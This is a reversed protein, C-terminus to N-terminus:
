NNEFDLLFQLVTIPAKSENNKSANLLQIKSFYKALNSGIKSDLVISGGLKLEMNQVDFDNQRIYSLLFFMFEDVTNFNFFNHGVLKQNRTAVLEFYKPSVELLISDQNGSNKLAYDILLATHHHLEISSFYKKLTDALANELSYVINIPQYKLMQSAVNVVPKGIYVELAKQKTAESFFAEPILVCDTHSIFAQVKSPNVSPLQHSKFILDLQNAAEKWDQSKLSYVEMWQVISNELLVVTVSEFDIFIRTLSNGAQQIAYEPKSFQQIPRQSMKFSSGTVMLQLSPLLDM